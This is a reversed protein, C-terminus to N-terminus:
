VFCEELHLLHVDEINLEVNNQELRLYEWSLIPVLGYCLVYLVAWTVRLAFTELEQSVDHLSTKVCLLDQCTLSDWSDDLEQCINLLALILVRLHKLEVSLIDELLNLALNWVLELASKTIVKFLPDLKRLDVIWDSLFTFNIMEEFLQTLEANCLILLKEEDETLDHDFLTDFKRLVVSEACLAQVVVSEVITEDIAKDLKDNTKQSGRFQM